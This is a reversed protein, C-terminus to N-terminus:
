EDDGAIRDCAVADVYEPTSAGRGQPTIGFAELLFMEYMRAALQLDKLFLKLPSNPGRDVLKRLVFAPHFTPLVGYQVGFPKTPRVFTGAVKRGWIHKKDTLVPMHSAGELTLPLLKGRSEVIGRVNGLVAQTATAGLTVILLPDVLYIEELLRPRCAAIHVPLPPSDRWIPGMKKTKYDERILEVGQGDVAKECSRCTVANTVYIDQNSFQLQALTQRLLQGSDGVFPTGLRAEQQGPGEGVFMIRGPNGEGHVAKSKMTERLAGLECARCLESEAQLVDLSRRVDRTM